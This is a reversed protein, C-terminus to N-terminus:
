PCDALPKLQITGFGEVTMTPPPGYSFSAEGATAGSTGAEPVSVDFVDSWAGTLDEGILIVLEFEQSVGVDIRQHLSWEGVPSGCKVGWAHVPGNDYQLRYGCQLESDKIGNRKILRAITEPAVTANADYMGTNMIDHPSGPLDESTGGDVVYTDDLGIVHGFEHAYTWRGLPPVSWTSPSSSQNLVIGGAGPEDSFPDGKGGKTSVTSHVGSQSSADVQIGIRDAFDDPGQSAVKVDVSVRVRYCKYMYPKAPNWATEINTKIAKAMEATITCPDPGQGAYTCMPYLTLRVLITITHTSHVVKVIVAGTIADASPVPLQMAWVLSASAVLVRLARRM